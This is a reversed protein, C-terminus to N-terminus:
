LRQNRFYMIIAVFLVIGAMGFVGLFFYAGTVLLDPTGFGTPQARPPLAGPTGSVPAVVRPIVVPSTPTDQPPVVTLEVTETPTPLPPTETLRASSVLVPSVLAECYNGSPDVVRLRLQYSGEPVRVTQWVVLRGNEVVTRVVDAGILVWDQRGQPSYEVKYFQFNPVLARGRIEVAGSVTAGSTPATVSVNRCDIAAPAGFAVTATIGTVLGGVVALALLRALVYVRPIGM